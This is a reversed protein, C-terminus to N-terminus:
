RATNPVQAFTIHHGEPDRYGIETAGYFTDRRPMFVPEGALASAIREIDGVELFLFTKDPTSARKALDPMDDRLMAWTQYMVEVLGNTLIAFGAGGGPGPVQVTPHIDVKAWFPLVREISDVFLVPTNKGVLASPKTAPKAAPKAAPKRTARAPKAARKAAARPKTKAAPARKSGTRKTAARAKKAPPRKTTTKKRTAM